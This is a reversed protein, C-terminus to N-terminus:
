GRIVSNAAGNMYSGLGAASRRDVYGPADIELTKAEELCEMVVDYLQGSRIAEYVVTSYAGVSPALGDEDDELQGNVRGETLFPVGLENRVYRYVRGAARGLYPSADLVGDKEGVPSEKGLMDRARLDLAQCLAVLHAAALQSLVDVADLTYRVSVLALSNIGQNGMEATQVHSGVPNALFGLESTLAAAMIDTGKFLYSREPDDAVLNAPLGRNTAPNVLETLQSFLMRGLSQLGQRLKEAASTVAKAQFNGGHLVRDAAADILPNDTVSNLETTIQAHALAFDELVPGVWQSATRVSYRDQRLEGAAQVNTQAQAQTLALRSGSLFALINRASDAQGPHPRVRAIFPDFSEDTGLLAEVSMATLVQSLAALNLSEHLALAAVGASVATGNVIALGEKPRVSTPEIDAEELAVDARVLRRDRDRPGCYASAYKKGQLVAGIYSLPQLDGSASISGRLPVLPVIDKNLMQLLGDTIRLRVGSAGAALSNLRVLMSARVWSEPMTTTSTQTVPLAQTIKHGNIKLHGNTQEHARGNVVSKSVDAHPQLKPEGGATIGAMLLHFLSQQLEDVAGTRTDASGGFGTNVGYIVEGLAIKQQIINSCKEVANEAERTLSVQTLHRSVAVVDAINLDYSSISITRESSKTDAWHALMLESFISNSPSM